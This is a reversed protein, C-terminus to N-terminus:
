QGAAGDKPKTTAPAATTPATVPAPWGNARIRKGVERLTKVDSPHISGDGLPGTNMLLNCNQGFAQALRRLTEAS